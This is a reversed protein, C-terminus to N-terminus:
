VLRKRFQKAQTIVLRQPSTGSEKKKAVKEAVNAGHGVAPIQAAGAAAITMFGSFVISGFVKM